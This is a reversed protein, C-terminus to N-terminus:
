ITRASLGSEGDALRVVKGAGVPRRQAAIFELVDSASVAVPSMDIVSFFVGLDSRAAAV